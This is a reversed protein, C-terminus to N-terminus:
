CVVLANLIRGPQSEKSCRRLIEPIMNLVSYTTRLPFQEPIVSTGEVTYQTSLKDTRLVMLPLAAPVQAM